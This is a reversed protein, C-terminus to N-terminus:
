FHCYGYRVLDSRDKILHVYGDSLLLVEDAIELLAEYNHDSVIIGMKEKQRRILKQIVEVAVPALYSFPEDLICFPADSCLCLWIEVIRVEGGSLEKVPTDPYMAFRPFDETFAEYDAGFYEFIQKLPMKPPLFTKQAMYKVYRGMEDSGTIVSDNFKVFLGQTKLEGMISRFMCSKGCGNRGLVGTVKGTESRLWAGNLVNYTGFALRISDALLTNKETSHM